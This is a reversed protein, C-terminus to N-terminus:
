YLWMAHPKSTDVDAHVFTKAIGIRKFGSKLLCEVMKIRDRSSKCAIDVAVGRLHSSTKSGGIKNNHNHCRCGSTIVMPSNYLKRAAELKQVLCLDIEDYGCGCKCAFENLNFHDTMKM